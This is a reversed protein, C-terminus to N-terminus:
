IYLIYIYIYRTRHVTDIYVIISIYLAHHIIEEWSQNARKEKEEEREWSCLKISPFCFTISPFCIVLREVYPISIVIFLYCGVIILENYWDSFSYTLIPGFKYCWVYEILWYLLLLQRCHCSGLTEINSIHM